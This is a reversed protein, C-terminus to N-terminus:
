RRVLHCNEFGVPHEATGLLDHLMEHKVTWEDDVYGDPFFRNPGALAIVHPARWEGACLGTPTVDCRFGAEGELCPVVYWAIRDLEGATGSCREVDQWWQFFVAPARLALAGDPTEPATPTDCGAAVAGGVLAYVLRAAAVATIPLLCSGIREHM